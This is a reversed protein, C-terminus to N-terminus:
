FFEQSSVKEYYLKGQKFTEITIITKGVAQNQADYLTAEVYDGNLNTLDALDVESTLM